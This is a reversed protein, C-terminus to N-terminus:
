REMKKRINKLRAKISPHNSQLMKLFNNNSQYTMETLLYFFNELGQAFGLYLATEDARYEQQKSVQAMLFHILKYYRYFLNRTFNSITKFLNKRRGISLLSFILGILFVIVILWHFIYLLLFASAVYSTRILLLGLTDRHYLHAYEHALIAELQDVEVLQLLGRYLCIDRYGLAFANIEREDIIWLRAKKANPYRKLLRQYVAGNVVSLFEIEAPDNITRGGIQKRKFYISLPSFQYVAVVIFILLGILVIQGYSQNRITNLITWDAPFIRYILSSSSILFITAVSFFLSLWQSAVVRPKNQM